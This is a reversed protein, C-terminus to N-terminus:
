RPEIRRMHRAAALWSGTLGLAMGAAILSLSEGVSLSLVNFSSNYLGALRAVPQELAYLGYRVLLLALIGGGLGYWLGSYLFPRRVFANSAGILKTVEIEDRRNQIDLRITNGIIM